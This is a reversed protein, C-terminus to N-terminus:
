QLFIQHFIYLPIFLSITGTYFIIIHIIEVWKPLPPYPIQKKFKKYIFLEILFLIFFIFIFINILFSIGLFCKIALKTPFLIDFIKTNDLFLLGLSSLDYLGIISNLNLSLFKYLQM